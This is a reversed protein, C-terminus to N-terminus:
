GACLGQGPDGARDPAPPGAAISLMGAHGAHEPRPWSGGCPQGGGARRGGGEGWACSIKRRSSMELALSARSLIRKWDRVSLATSSLWGSSNM